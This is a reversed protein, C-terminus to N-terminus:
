ATRSSSQHNPNRLVISANLCAAFLGWMLYPILLAGALPDLQWFLVLTVAVAVDMTILVALAARIRRAGFFFPTWAANLVLQVSYWIVAVAVGDVAWGIRLVRYHAFGMLLYLTVWVPGFVKPPPNWPPKAITPYWTKVTRVTLGGNIAGIMQPMLLCVLLISLDNM